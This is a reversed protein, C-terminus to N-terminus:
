LPDFPGVRSGLVSRLAEHAERATSVRYRMHFVVPKMDGIRRLEISIVPPLLRKRFTFTVAVVDNVPVRETSQVQEALLASTVRHDHFGAPGFQKSFELVHNFKRRKLYHKAAAAALAQGKVEPGNVGKLRAILLRTGDAIAVSPPPNVLVVADDFVYMVRALMGEFGKVLHRGPARMKETHLTAVLELFVGPGM